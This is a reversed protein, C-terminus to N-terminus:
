QEVFYDTDDNGEDSETNEFQVAQNYHELIVNSMEESSVIIYKKEFSGNDNRPIFISKDSDQYILVRENQLDYLYDNKIKADNYGYKPIYNM